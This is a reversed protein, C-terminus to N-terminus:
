PSAASELFSEIGEYVAQAYRRQGEPSALAAEQDPLMIFLGEVLVAPMWPTRVLALNGRGVGLDRLGLEKLLARQIERALPLSHPFFYYASSGNNVFPNVGDPLANAHISVLLEASLSDALRIRPVLGVPSDDTRTMVVRAGAKELMAALQRAVALTAVPEKLGLPGTAGVPPHGPDVVILRDRLPHARDIAPTRRLDLLLDEQDWRLRYGWLPGALEFRFVVEDSTAQSWEVSAVASDTGGYRIWNPDGYAGYLRLVLTHGEETVGYPVRRAVPIRVEVRDALPRMTVFGVRARPLPAGLPLPAAERVPVWASSTASLALRLFANERGSVLATTGPPFFWHYTADPVARGVTLGDTGGEGLPDDDLVAGQPLTDLLGLQLPWRVRATDSGLVAEVVLVGTDRPAAATDMPLIRGPDEGVTRGRLVGRYRTRDIPREWRTSDRGFARIGWPLEAPASDPFLPLAAGDPFLVRVAAGPAARVSLPVYEGVPWWVRGTPALSTSDIWPGTVPPRYRVIRRAPYILSASDRGARAVITFQMVSDTGQPFPIWAFWAGNPWVFAGYGNVTVRAAGNGVSGFIFSTDRADVIDEWKPYVVRIDLPGRTSAMAPVGTVRQTVVAGGGQARLSGSSTATLLLAFLSL